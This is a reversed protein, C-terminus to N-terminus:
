LAIALALIDSTSAKGSTKQDVYTKIAKQTPVKSSSNAQLTDDDDLDSIKVQADNTVNTLGVDSKTLSVAGTKGSVSTVMSSLDSPRVVNKLTGDSNHEVLLFNNLLDGWEGDDQGSQPLRTM